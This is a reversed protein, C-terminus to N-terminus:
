SPDPCEYCLERSGPGAAPTAREWGLAPFAWSGRLATSLVSPEPSQVFCRAKISQDWLFRSPSLPFSHWALFLGYCPNTFVPSEHSSQLDGQPSCPSLCTCLLPRPLSSFPSQSQAPTPLHPFCCCLEWQSGQCLQFLVMIDRLHGPAIFPPEACLGSPFSSPSTSHGTSCLDARSHPGCHPQITGNDGVLGRALAARPADWHLSTSHTIVAGDLASLLQVASGAPYLAVALM